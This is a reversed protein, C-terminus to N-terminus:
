PTRQDEKNEKKQLKGNEFYEASPLIKNGKTIASLQLISSSNHNQPQTKLTFGCYLQSRADSIIWMNSSTKSNNHKQIRTAIVLYYWFLLRWKLNNTGEGLLTAFALIM